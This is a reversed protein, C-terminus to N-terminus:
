NASSIKWAQLNTFHKENFVSGKINFDVTVISGESFNNLIDCQDKILEFKLEQPFKDDTILVFERKAFGSDFIKTENITKITGKLQM